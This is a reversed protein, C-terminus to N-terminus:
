VHVFEVPTGMKDSGLLRADRLTLKGKTSSLYYFALIILSCRQWRQHRRYPQPPEQRDFKEGRIHFSIPWCSQSDGVTLASAWRGM